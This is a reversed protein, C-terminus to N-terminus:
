PRSASRPRKWSSGAWPRPARSSSTTSRSTSCRRTRRGDARSRPWSRPDFTESLLRALVRSTAPTYASPKVVACNGASIAGVLPTLCLQIPYNWPALILVSGYPEPSLFSRSPFQSLPAPVPKDAAWARLHRLHCRIEALVMGTETMYVEAAPKRFDQAMAAELERQNRLVADRLKRLAAERFAAPRTAGTRFYDHQSQVLATFDM